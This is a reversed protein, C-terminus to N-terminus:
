SASTASAPHSTILGCAGSLPVGAKACLMPILSRNPYDRAIRRGRHVFLFDGLAGTKEDLMKPHPRRVRQWAEVAEGLIADVPKTFATATKNVPVDLLCIPAAGVQAGDDRQWRICGVPLRHIEDSRLAAFLWLHALARVMEIPYYASPAKSSGLAIAQVDDASLNM